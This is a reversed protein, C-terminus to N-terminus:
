RSRTISIRFEAGGMGVVLGRNRLLLRAEEFTQLQTLETRTEEAFLGIAQTLFDELEEESMPQPLPQVHRDLIPHDGMPDM